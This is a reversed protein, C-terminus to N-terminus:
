YLHIMCSNKCFTELEKTNREQYFKMITHVVNQLQIILSYIEENVSDTM